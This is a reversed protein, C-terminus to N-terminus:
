GSPAQIPAASKWSVAGCPRARNLATFNSIKPVRIPLPPWCSAMTWKDEFALFPEVSDRGMYPAVTVADAGWQEFAAKAYRTATNGIDGRKADAIRLCGEPIASLTESLVDWGESGMAEYFAVNPKYAVALDATADIISRNFRLVAEAGTGLHRPMKAPDPDLGVCLFSSKRRITKVLQQVDM